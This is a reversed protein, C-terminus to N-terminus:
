AGVPVVRLALGDPAYLVGRSPGPDRHRSLRHTKLVEALLVTLEVLATRSAPCSRPGLAFPLYSGLAPRLHRREPRFADPDPHAAADRHNLYPSFVATAGAPLPNVPARLQRRLQWVPPHLRLTERVVGRCFPLDAGPEPHALAEARAQDQADPHLALRHFTWALAAAPVHHGSLLLTRVALTVHHEEFGHAALLAPLGDRDARVRHRVADYTARRARDLSRRGLVPRGLVARTRGAASLEEDVLASLTASPAGLLHALTADSVLRVAARVGDVVGPAPWAATTRRAQEAIAPLLPELHPATLVPRLARRVAMWTAAGDPGWSTLDRRPASRGTVADPSALLRATSPPDTVLWLGPRLETVGDGARAAALLEERPDRM